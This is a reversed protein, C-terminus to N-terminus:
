DWYHNRYKKYYEFTRKIGDEFSVGPNWITDEKIKALEDQAMRVLDEDVKISKEKELLEVGEKALPDSILIRKIM